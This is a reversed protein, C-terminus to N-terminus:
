VGASVPAPDVLEDELVTEGPPMAPSVDSVGTAGGGSTVRSRSARSRTATM